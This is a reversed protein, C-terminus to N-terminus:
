ETSVSYGARRLAEATAKSARVTDVEAPGYALGDVVIVPQGYSSESRETSALGQHWAKDGILRVRVKAAKM